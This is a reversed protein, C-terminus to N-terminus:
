NYSDHGKLSSIKSFFVQMRAARFRSVDNKAVKDNKERITLKRAAANLNCVGNLYKTRSFRSARNTIESPSCDASGFGRKSPPAPLLPAPFRNVTVREDCDNQCLRLATKSEIVLSIISQVFKTERRANEHINRAPDLAAVIIASLYTPSANIPLLYGHTTEITKENYRM